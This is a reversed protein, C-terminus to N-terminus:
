SVRGAEVFRFDAGACRVLSAGYSRPLADGRARMLRAVFRTADFRDKGEGCGRDDPHLTSVGCRRLLRSTSTMACNVWKGRRANSSANSVTRARARSANVECRISRTSPRRRTFGVAVREVHFPNRAGQCLPCARPRREHRRNGDDVPRRADHIRRLTIERHRHRGHSGKRLCPPVDNRKRAFTTM